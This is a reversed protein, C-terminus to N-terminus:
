NNQYETLIWNFQHLNLFHWMTFHSLFLNFFTWLALFVTHVDLSYSISVFMSLVLRSSPELSISLSTTEQIYRRQRILLWGRCPCERRGSPHTHHPGSCVDWTSFITSPSLHPSSLLPLTSSPFFLPLFFSSLSQIFVTFLSHLPFINFPSFISHLLSISHSLFYLSLSLSSFLSLSLWPRLMQVSCLEPPLCCLRDALDLVVLPCARFRTRGPMAMPCLCCM